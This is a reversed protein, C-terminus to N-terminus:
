CDLTRENSTVTAALYPQPQNSTDQSLIGTEQEMIGVTLVSVVKTVTCM